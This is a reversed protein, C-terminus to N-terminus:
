KTHQGVCDLSGDRTKEFEVNEQPSSEEMPSFSAPTFGKSHAREHCLADHSSHHHPQLMCLDEEMTCVETLKSNKDKTVSRIDASRKMDKSVLNGFMQLQKRTAFTSSGNAVAKNFSHGVVSERSSSASSISIHDDYTDEHCLLDHSRKGLISTEKVGADLAVASHSCTPGTLSVCKREDMGEKVEEEWKGEGGEDEEWKNGEDKSAM